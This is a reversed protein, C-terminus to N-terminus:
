QVVPDGKEEFSRTDPIIYSKLNNTLQQISHAGSPVPERAFVKPPNTNM